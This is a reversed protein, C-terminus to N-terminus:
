APTWIPDASDVGPDAGLHGDNLAPSLDHVDQGQGEDLNWFGVLGPSAPDVGDQQVDSIEAATLSRNWMAPDDIEGPLFWVPPETEGAPLRGISGHTAGLSLFQQNNSSPKGTAECRAREEGNIYFVLEGSEDRTLAVHHWAGDAVFLDGAECSGFPVCDNNPYCYNNENSAEIMAQLDGEPGVYLQWSLNFSDDDEGRAIIAARQGPPAPLRIWAAVTFVETPFSADWPVLVRDDLGDFSLHSDAATATPVPTGDDVPSTAETPAASPTHSPASEDTGCAALGVAVLAVLSGLLSARRWTPRAGPPRKPIL